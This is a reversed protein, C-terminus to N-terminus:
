ARIHGHRDSTHSARLRDVSMRDPCNVDREGGFIRHPMERKRERTGPVLDPM